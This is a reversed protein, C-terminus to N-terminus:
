LLDWDDAENTDIASLYRRILDKDEKLSVQALRGPSVFKGAAALLRRAACQCAGIHGNAASVVTGYSAAPMGRDFVQSEPWLADKVRRRPRVVIGSQSKLTQAACPVSSAFFM